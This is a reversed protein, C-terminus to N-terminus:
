STTTRTTEQTPRPRRQTPTVLFPSPSRSCGGQNATVTVSRCRSQANAADHSASPAAPPAALSRSFLRPWLGRSCNFLLVPSCSLRFSTAHANTLDHHRGSRLDIRPTSTAHPPETRPDPLPTPEMLPDPVHKAARFRALGRLFVLAATAAAPAANRRTNMTTVKLTGAAADQSTRGEGICRTAREVQSPCSISRAAEFAPEAQGVPPPPSTRPSPDPHTPLAPPLHRPALFWPLAMRPRAEGVSLVTMRRTVGARNAAWRRTPYSGDTTRPGNAGLLENFFAARLRPM